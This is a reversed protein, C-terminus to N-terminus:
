AHDMGGRPRPRLPLERAMAETLAGLPEGIVAGSREAAQRAAAAMSLQAAWVRSERHREALRALGESVAKLYADKDGRMFLEFTGELLETKLPRDIGRQRAYAQWREATGQVTAPNTFVLLPPQASEGMAAFLPDDIKIVPVPSSYQQPIHATFFTCTILIADVRSSGIWHLMSAVKEASQEPTWGPDAKRRDLGPDVFHVLEADYPELANHIYDQIEFTSRMLFM